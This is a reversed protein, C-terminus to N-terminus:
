APWEDAALAFLGKGRVVEKELGEDDLHPAQATGRWGCIRDCVGQGELNM